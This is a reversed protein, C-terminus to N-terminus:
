PPNSLFIGEQMGEPHLFTPSQQGTTDSTGREVVPVRREDRQSSSVTASDFALTRDKSKVRNKETVRVLGLLDTCDCLPIEVM